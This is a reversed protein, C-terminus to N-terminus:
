WISFVMKTSKLPINEKKILNPIDIVAVNIQSFTYVPLYEHFLITAITGSQLNTHPIIVNDNMDVIQGVLVQSYTPVCEFEINTKANGPLFDITTRLIM